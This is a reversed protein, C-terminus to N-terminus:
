YTTWEAWASSSLNASKLSERLSRISMWLFARRVGCLRPSSTRRTNSSPCVGFATDVAKPTQRFVTRLHSSRKWASPSTRGELACNLAVGDASDSGWASCPASRSVAGHACAADLTLIHTLGLKGSSTWNASAPGPEPASASFRDATMYPSRRRPMAAAVPMGAGASAATVTQNRMTEIDNAINSSHSPDPGNDNSGEDGRLLGLEIFSWIWGIIPILAILIWWASKGRHHYRKAMICISIWLNLLAIAFAILALTLDQIEAFPPNIFVAAAFPGAHCLRLAL